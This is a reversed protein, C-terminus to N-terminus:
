VTLLNMFKSKKYSVSGGGHYGRCDILAMENQMNIFFITQNTYIHTPKTGGLRTDMTTTPHRQLGFYYM